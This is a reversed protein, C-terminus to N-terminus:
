RQHSSVSSRECLEKLTLLQRRMMMVDGWPLLSGVWRFSRHATRRALLKALLRTETPSTSKVVYSGAIDGFIREARLHDIRLTIHKDQEFEVLRFITMFRQGVVLNDLDPLLERPSRHVCNDIWDYSYPAVRLQCLWRFVDRRCAHVTIARFLTDDPNALYRDCPYSTSREESTSGWTYGFSNPLIRIM